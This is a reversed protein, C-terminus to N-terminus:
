MAVLYFGAVAFFCKKNKFVLHIVSTITILVNASFPEDKIALRFSAYLTVIEMHYRLEATFKKMYQRPPGSNLRSNFARKRRPFLIPLVSVAHSLDVTHPFKRSYRLYKM